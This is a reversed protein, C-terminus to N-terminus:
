DVFLGAVDIRLGPLREYTLDDGPQLIAPRPYGNGDHRYVEVRDAEPDVIWYEPVDFRAYLDRKQIQDRRPHTRSLVEIVLSPAGQINAETQISLRDDAIFVLDPEVVDIDSFLVDAPAVYVIGGGHAALHNGLALYLRGVIRQHRLYPSPSVILEGNILEYRLGDDPLELLDQYTLARESM